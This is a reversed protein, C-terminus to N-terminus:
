NAQQVLEPIQSLDLRIGPSMTSTLAWGRYYNGKVVAPKARQLVEMLTVINERLQDKSFSVKGVGAHIIGTKEVRYEIRGAKLEQVTNAVDQTVTGVKPNPMMGRPGLVKGLQGVKAMMDPTAIVKDFDLFGGRVKEVLEEAGVIDAGAETAETEKEGKAFVLVRVTKGTGNPLSVSGRIMEEAKRPDVRLRVSLEVTEDFKAFHIGKLLELAEDLMYKRKSDVKERAENYKKGRKAM